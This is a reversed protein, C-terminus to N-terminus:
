VSQTITKILPIQNYLKICVFFNIASLCIGSILVIICLTYFWWTKYWPPSITFEFTVPERNWLGDNNMTKVMFKYTGPPLSPYNAETKSTPPTWDDHELGELKYQYMVKEPATLSVGIFQFTLHNKNFPLNLKKPLMLASDIGNSYKLIDEQGFFLKVSNISTKAEKLNKKDFKPDYIELGSITGILIRGTKDKFIANFNNELSLLGDDKGFHQIKIKQQYYDTLNLIDIGTNLGIILRNRDDIQLSWINNSSLGNKQSIRSFSKYDYNYLGEETGFWLKQNKDILASSIRRSIFGNKENFFTVANNEYKIVGRETGVWLASNKDEVISFISFEIGEQRLSNIAKAESIIGDKYKFLGVTTGVWINKQSDQYLSLIYKKRFDFDTITKFKGNEYICLGELTGFFIRGDPLPLISTINNDPIDNPRSREVKFNTITKGDIKSLGSNRLAVWYAGNMDQAVANVYNEPLGNQKSYSTFQPGLYKYAGSGDTGMWINDERDTYLCMISNFTLGNQLNFNLLTNDAYRYLGDSASGLWQENKSNAILSRFAVNFQNPIYDCNRIINQEDIISVGGVTGILIEHNINEAYSFVLNEQLGNTKDFHTFSNNSPNYCIAGDNITAFWIRKKSDIFLSFVSAKDLIKDFSFRRIKEDQLIYVGEQTGIWTKDGDPLLKFIWSNTLGNKESYNKFTKGNYVSLGKSTGFLLENKHNQTISFVINNILGDNDSLTIFKNGDFKGVGGSNTGFWMFGKHDQYISLVQSQPLGQEINYNKFNYTQSIGSIRILFLCLFLITYKKTFVM